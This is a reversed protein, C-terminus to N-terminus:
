RKLSGDKGSARAMDRFTGNLGTWHLKVEIHRWWRALLWRDQPRRIFPWAIFRSGSIGHAPWSIATVRGGWQQQILRAAASLFSVSSLLSPLCVGDIRWWSSADVRYETVQQALGGWPCVVSHYLQCSSSSSGGGNDPWCRWAWQLMVVRRVTLSPLRTRPPQCGAALRHTIIVGYQDHDSWLETSSSSSAPPLMPCAPWIPSNYM